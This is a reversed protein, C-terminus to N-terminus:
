IFCTLMQLNFDAVECYIKQTDYRQFVFTVTVEKHQRLSQFSVRSEGEGGDTVVSLVSWTFWTM